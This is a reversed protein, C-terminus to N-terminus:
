FNILGQNLCYVMFQKHRHNLQECEWQLLCGKRYRRKRTSCHILLLYHHGDKGFWKEFKNFQEIPTM